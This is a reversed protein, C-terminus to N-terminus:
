KGGFANSSPPQLPSTATPHRSRARAKSYPHPLREALATLRRLGGRGGVSALWGLNVLLLQLSPLGPSCVMPLSGLQILGSASSSHLTQPQSALASCKPSLETLSALFFHHNGAELRRQIESVRFIRTIKPSPGWRPISSRTLPQIPLVQPM